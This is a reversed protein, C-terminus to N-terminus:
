VTQPVYDRIPCFMYRYKLFQDKIIAQSFEQRFGLTTTEQNNSSSQTPEFVYLDINSNHVLPKFWGIRCYEDAINYYVHNYKKKGTETDITFGADSTRKWDISKKKARFDRQIRKAAIVGCHPINIVEGQIIAQRAKLCFREIVGKFTDYEIITEQINGKKTKIVIAQPVMSGKKRRTSYNPNEALLKKVYAEWIHRFSHNIIPEVKM